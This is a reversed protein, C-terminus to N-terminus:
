LGGLHIEKIPAEAPFRIWVSTGNTGDSQFHLCSGHIQAIKQTLALGLGAGHMNRSRSKDVMYFAETIRPIEDPPIGRGNDTIELMFYAQTGDSTTDCPQTTGTVQISSAGAKVANDTLNLFLTKFLDYDAKIYAQQAKCTYSIGKEEMLFAVDASLENLLQQADMVELAFEKHNLVTLDMLKMSLAELRMGENWIHWAAQKQADRPLDKKYIRDAYGIVSTLPTKLEHALNAAFDEKQRASESLERIKEEITCAMRNFNRGLQGVEDSGSAKVRESYNGDAISQTAATLRKVSRTLLASFGFTLLIGASVAGAYIYGFKQVIQEQQQLIKQIDVGTILYVSTGEQRICGSLLLHMRNRIELFQYSVTKSAAHQLLGSFDTEKPFGSYLMTHNEDFLAVTGTLDSLVPEMQELGDVTDAIWDDRRTILAAQVVFKNYQYQQATSEVEKEIVTEYFCSILVFGCGLFAISLFITIGFFMKVGLKM